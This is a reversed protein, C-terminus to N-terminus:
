TTREKSEQSPLHHAPSTKQLALDALRGAMFATPAGAYYAVLEDDHDAGLALLENAVAHTDITEAQGLAFHIRMANRAQLRRRLDDPRRDRRGTLREEIACFPKFKLLPHSATM